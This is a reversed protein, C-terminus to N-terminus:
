TSRENRHPGARDRGPLRIIDPRWVWLAYGIVVHALQAALILLSLAVALPVPLGLRWFASVFVADRTGIGAISVPLMVILGAICIIAAVHLYDIPIGLAQALVWGKFFYTGWMAVTILFVVLDRRPTMRQFGDEIEGGAAAQAGPLARRVLAYGVHRLGGVRLVVFAGAVAALVALALPLAQVRPFLDAFARIGLLGGLVVVGVDMVREYIVGIFSKVYPHGRDVLHLGRALDGVRGPTVLGVAYAAYNVLFSDGLPLHIGQVGIVYRWRLWRLQIIVANLAVASLVLLPDAHRLARGVAALDVRSLILIALLPGVGLVV